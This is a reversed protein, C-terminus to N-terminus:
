RAFMAMLQLQRAQPLSQMRAMAEEPTRVDAFDALPTDSHALRERDADSLQQLFALGEEITTIRGIRAALDDVSHDVTAPVVSTPIAAVLQLVEGIRRVVDDASAFPGKSLCVMTTGFPVLVWDDHGLILQQVQPTLWTGAVSGLMGTVLYREDFAPDGVPTNRVHLRLHYRRAYVVGPRLITPLDVACYAVDIAPGLPLQADGPRVARANAVTVPRGADSFRFADRCVVVRSRTSTLSATSVNGVGYMGLAIDFLMDSLDQPVPPHPAPQWGSAAAREALGTVPPENVSRRHFLQM